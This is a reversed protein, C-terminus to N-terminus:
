DLGHRRLAERVVEAFTGLIKATAGWVLEGDVHWSPVIRTLGSGRFFQARPREHVFLGLPALFARAIEHDNPRPELDERLWGVYPTIMFGTITPVDDLRGHVEISDPPFGLEEHTERVATVMSDRDEPDRKGGPLAVQGRHTTLTDSRRILWVFVEDGRAVLPILVSAPKAMAFPARREQREFLVLRLAERVAIPVKKAM